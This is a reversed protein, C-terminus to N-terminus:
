LRIGTRGNRLPTNSPLSPGGLPTPPPSFDFPNVWPEQLILVDAFLGENPVSM